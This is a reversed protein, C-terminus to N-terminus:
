SLARSRSTRAIRVTSAPRRRTTSASTPWIASTSPPAAWPSSSSTAFRKKTRCHAGAASTGRLRQQAQSFPIVVGVLFRNGYGMAKLTAFQPLHASVDTYLIQYVIVFGIFFAIVLLTQGPWVWVALGVLAEILGLAISWGRTSGDLPVSFMTFVGQFVLVAGIFAALDGVSWDNFLIIGGAVASVIGTLLLVWWNRSVSDIEGGSALM